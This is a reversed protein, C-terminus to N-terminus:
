PTMIIFMCTHLNNFSFMAFDSLQCYKRITEIYIVESTFCFASTRLLLNMEYMNQTTEVM